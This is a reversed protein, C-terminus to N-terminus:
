SLFVYEISVGGAGSDKSKGLSKRPASHLVGWVFQCPKLIQYEPPTSGKLYMSTFSFGGDHSYRPPKKNPAGSQGMREQGVHGVRSLTSLCSFAWVPHAKKLSHIKEVPKVIKSCMIMIAFRKEIDLNCWTPWPASRTLGQYFSVELGVLKVRLFQAGLSSYPKEVRCGWFYPIHLPRWRRSTSPRGSSFWLRFGSLNTREPTHDNSFNRPLGGCQLFRLGVPHVHGLSAPGSEIYIPTTKRVSHLPEPPGSVSM